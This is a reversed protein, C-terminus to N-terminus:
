HRCLASSTRRLDVHRRLVTLVAHLVVTEHGHNKEDAVPEV